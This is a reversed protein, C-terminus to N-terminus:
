IGHQFYSENSCISFQIFVFCFEITLTFLDFNGSLLLKLHCFSFGSGMVDSDHRSRRQSVERLGTSVHLKVSSGTHERDQTLDGPWVVEDLGRTM